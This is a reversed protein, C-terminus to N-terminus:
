GVEVLVGIWSSKAKAIHGLGVEFADGQLVIKDEARGILGEFAVASQRAPWFQRRAPRQPKVLRAKAIAVLALHPSHTSPKRVWPRGSLVM